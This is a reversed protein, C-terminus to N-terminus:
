DEEYKLILKMDEDSIEIFNECKNKYPPVAFQSFTQHKSPIARFRYCKMCSPCVINHCMAIDPM